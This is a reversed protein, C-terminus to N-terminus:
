PNDRIYLLAAAAAGYGTRGGLSSWFFIDAHYDIGNQWVTGDTGEADFYTQDPGVGVGPGQSLAGGLPEGTTWGSGTNESYWLEGDLGHCAFVTIQAPNPSSSLSASAAPAGTCQWPTSQWGSALTRTWISHDPGEGFFTLEANVGGAGIPNVPAVAPGTLLGGGLSQMPVPLTAPLAGSSVVEQGYWLGTDAGECAMTLLYAGAAHASVVVAAPNNICYANALVQWPHSLDRVWLRHDGGVGIFVPSGPDTGDPNPISAVAPAALLYGGLSFWGGSGEAWLSGDLGTVAYQVPTSGAQSVTMTHDAVPRSVAAHATLPQALAFACVLGALLAAWAWLSTIAMRRDM